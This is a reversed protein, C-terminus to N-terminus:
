TLLNALHHTLSSESYSRTTDLNTLTQSISSRGRAPMREKILAHCSNISVVNVANSNSADIGTYGKSITPVVLDLISPEYSTWGTLANPYAYAISSFGGNGVIKPCNYPVTSASFLKAAGCLPMFTVNSVFFGQINFTRSGPCDLYFRLTGSTSLPNYVAGPAKPLTGFSKTSYSLYSSIAYDTTVETM